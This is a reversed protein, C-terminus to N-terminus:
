WYHQARSFLLRVFAFLPDRRQICSLLKIINPVTDLLIVRIISAYKVPCAFSFYREFQFIHSIIFETGELKIISLGHTLVM